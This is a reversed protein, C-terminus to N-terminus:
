QETKRGTNSNYSVSHLDFTEEDNRLAKAWAILFDEGFNTLVEAKSGTMNEIISVAKEKNIRIGFWYVCFSIIFILGVIILIRHKSTM